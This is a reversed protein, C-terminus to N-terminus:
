EDEQKGQLYREVQAAVGPDADKLRRLGEQPGYRNLIAIARNLREASVQQQLANELSAETPFEPVTLREMLKGTFDTVNQSQQAADKLPLTQEHDASFTSVSLTPKPNRLSAGHAESVEDNADRSVSFMDAAHTERSPAAAVISDANQRITDAWAVDGDYGNFYGRMWIKNEWDERFLSMVDLTYRRVERRDMLDEPPVTELFLEALRQRMMPEYDAYDGTPFHERFNEEQLQRGSSPVGQSELFDWWLVLNFGPFVAEQKRLYELYAPSALAKKMAQLRPNDDKTGHMQMSALVREKSAEARAKLKAESLSGASEATQFKPVTTKYVVVPAKEKSTYFLVSVACIGVLIVLIGVVHVSKINM